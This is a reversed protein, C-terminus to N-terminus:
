LIEKLEKIITELSFESIKEKFFKDIYKDKKDFNELFKIVEETFGEKDGTKVLIGYENKGLIDKPGTPCDYAIVPTGSIMSELFVTPLGEGYSTHLFVKAKKMWPYPNKRQGLLFVNEQLGLEDIKNQLNEKEKGDGLIYLKDNVGKKKLEYYIDILDERGKVKVLRSVAVMYDKELYKKDEESIESFDLAERQVKEVDFPNYLRKLKETPVDFLIKAEEKMEDCIAVIKDYKKLRKQYRKAKGKKEKKGILSFHIWGIKKSSVVDLYKGLSMDFDITVDIKNNKFYDKLWNKMYRREYNLMFLYLIKWFLNKRKNYAKNRFKIMKEPKIFEIKINKPVDQLFVDRELNNEKLVLTVELDKEKSLGQLYSIAVKEIGGMFLQGNYFLVKKM